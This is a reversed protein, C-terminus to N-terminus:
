GCSAGRTPKSSWTITPPSPIQVHNGDLTLLITARSTLRVVRGEYTEIVVHDNAPFPQRLSLMISAVYNTVTDRVAFGLAIGIVGAGGLVGGLLATTGLVEFVVVFGLIIFGVRISTALLEALFLNPAIWRLIRTRSAIAYGLVAVLMGAGIAVGVLPLARVFARVGQGFQGIAPAVKTGVDLNRVLDNQLTVVGKVRSAIAEARGKDAAAPVSGKLTVVGASVQVGVAHLDAIEGFISRIRAAIDADDSADAKTAIVPAPPKDPTDASQTSAAFASALLTAAALLLALSKM